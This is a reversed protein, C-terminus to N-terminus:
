FLLNNTEKMVCFMYELFTEKNIYKEHFIFGNNAINQAYKDNNKLHFLKDYLNNYEKDIFEIENGKLLKEFWLKYKSEVYLVVSNMKFLSSYRYAASNGQVYFIYKYKSQETYTLPAKKYKKFLKMDIFDYKFDYVKIRNVPQHLGVDLLKKYRDTQSLYVLKLRPNNYTNSGCGTPSGRFVAIDKKQNWDTILKTNDSLSKWEDATPIPIDLHENTVSQSLVVWKNTHLDICETKPYLNDYGDYCDIRFFPFDKRNIILDCDPINKYKNITEIILENIEKVYNTPNGYEKYNEFSVICNNATYENPDLLKVKKAHTNRHRHEMFSHINQGHKFKINKNWNNRFNANYIHFACEINNNRIRYYLMDRKTDFLYKLSGILDEKKLKNYHIFKEKIIDEIDNNIKIENTYKTPETYTDLINMEIEKWYILPQLFSRYQELENHIIIDGGGLQENFSVKYFKYNDNFYSNDIHFVVQKLGDFNNENNPFGNMEDFIKADFNVNNSKDYFIYKDYNYKHAITFGINCLINKNIKNEDNQQIIYVDHNRLKNLLKDINNNEYPIIIANRCKKDLDIYNINTM